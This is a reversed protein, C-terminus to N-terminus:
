YHLEYKWGNTERKGSTLRGIINKESVSYLLGVQRTKLGFMTKMELCVAICRSDPSALTAEVRFHGGGILASAKTVIDTWFERAETKRQIGDLLSLLPELRPSDDRTMYEFRILMGTLYCIKLDDPHSIKGSWTCLKAEAPSCFKGTASRIAEEELLRGSSLSSSVFLKKLAVKGSVASKELESPIVRKGTVDCVVLIGPKVIKGTIECTEAEEPLLPQNTEACFIFEKKHGIKGSVVSRLQEDIRYRMGSIQSITSESELIETLSFKCQTFFSPEARKGSLASVKLLDKIVMKGSIDSKEVEDSLATKGTLTCIVVHEPLALRGSVESRVLLHRLVKLGSIQCIELCELPVTIETRACKELLPAAVIENSSPVLSIQSTYEDKSGLTYGVALRIGRRVSGELGVLSLGIRPTFDDEIKKKRYANEGAAALEHVLRERYFRSFEDVGSDLLAQEVLLDPVLGIAAPNQFADSIPELGPRGISVSHEEPSCSVEVLREYSDHAVTIRVQLLATGSFNRWVDELHAQTYSGGFGEVWARAMKEAQPLPNHDIDNILHKGIKSIKNALREFAPSGPTYLTATIGTEQNFSILENKGDLALEIQGSPKELINGGLNKVASLVFGQPDLSYEVPPLKPCLPGSEAAGDMGGLTVNITEEDRELQIKAEAINKEELLTAAEIDKGMLSDVVLRSIKEQLSEKDEGMEAAELLAEVDGVAHTAMQLKEMLRGVIHEEFTGRLIMNFICVTSYNSALRQIRGIRQEVIMPNWPLDYNVLVNAAQLNVGESGARTSIIAHIKPPDMRFQGIMEQNRSGSEGNILGCTIGRSTLFEEIVSQTERRETFIVVRWHDPKESQLGNILAALGTLKATVGIRAVIEKVGSAFSAPITKNIAMNNLQVSFAQPSSVIAQAVSIRVLPSLKKIGERIFAFLEKEGASPEVRYSNIKREPFDLDVDARRFRSMYRYVIDRFEDRKDIKLVRASIRDGEIFKRAFANANGFPNEHGRATTLLDVLSYIDWLRNQIPTATLMLVYKFLRDEFAKKFCRAVEPPKETGYLNRLKHAEDLILMDFGIEAIKNLYMRASEYTTILAFKSEPFETDFIKQGTQEIGTIGFKTELEERWQPMLLKPCVILIKNLRGRAILESAVLGASITKGLGVDDALLTVPLRRCFTMLNSVQHHYPKVLKKWVRESRLDERNEIM